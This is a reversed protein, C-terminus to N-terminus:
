DDLERLFKSIGDLLTIGGMYKDFSYNGLPRSEEGACEMISINLSNNSKDYTASVEYIGYKSFISDKDRRLVDRIDSILNEMDNYNIEIDVVKKFSASPENSSLSKIWLHNDGFVDYDLKMYTCSNQVGSMKDVASKFM